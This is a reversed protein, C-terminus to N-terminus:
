TELRSRHSYLGTQTPGPPFGLNNTKDRVPESKLVKMFDVGKQKSNDNAGHFNSTLRLIWRLRKDPSQLALQYFIHM